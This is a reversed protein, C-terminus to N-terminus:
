FTLAVVWQPTASYLRFVGRSTLLGGKGAALIGILSELGGSFVFSGNKTTALGQPHDGYEGDMATSIYKVGGTVDNVGLTVIIAQSEDTTYLYKGDSSLVADAGDDAAPIDRFDYIHVLTLSRGLGIKLVAVQLNLSNAESVYVFDSQSDISFGGAIFETSVTSVQTLMGNGSNIAYSIAETTKRLDHSSAVILTAGDPSVSMGMPNNPLGIAQVKSLSGDPHISLVELMESDFGDSFLWKGDPSIALGVGRSNPVGFAPYDGLLQLECNSKKVKLAAIDGSHADAVYLIDQAPNVVIDRALAEGSGTGGTEVPSVSDRM